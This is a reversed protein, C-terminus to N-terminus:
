RSLERIMGNLFFMAINFGFLLVDALFLWANGHQWSLYALFLAVVALCATLGQLIYSTAIM